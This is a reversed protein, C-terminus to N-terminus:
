KLEEYLNVLFARPNLNAALARAAYGEHIFFLTRWDYFGVDGETSIIGDSDLLSGSCGPICALCGSCEIPM